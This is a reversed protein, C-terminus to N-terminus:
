SGVHSTEIAQFQVRLAQMKHVFPERSDLNGHTKKLLVLCLNEM